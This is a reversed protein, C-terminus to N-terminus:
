LRADPYANKIIEEPVGAVRLACVAAEREAEAKEREAKVNAEAKEREDKVKAEAKEREDKVKAEAKEREDERGIRIGDERGREEGREEADMMLNYHDMEYKMKSLLTYYRREDASYGDLVETAMKVGDEEKMIEGILKRAFASENANYFFYV